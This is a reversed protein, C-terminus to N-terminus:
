VSFQERKTGEAELAKLWSPTRGRGTWEEGNPGRYKAAVKKGSSATKASGSAPRSAVLRDLSLGLDSARKRFETLLEERATEQKHRLTQEAFEILANIEPVTMKEVAIRLSHKVAEASAEGDKDVRESM